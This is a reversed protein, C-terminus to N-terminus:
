LLYLGTGKEEEFTLLAQGGQLLVTPRQTIAFVGRIPQRDDETDEKNQGSFRVETDPIM